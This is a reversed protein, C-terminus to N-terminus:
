DATLSELLNYVKSLELHEEYRYYKTGCSKLYASELDFDTENLFTGHVKQSPLQRRYEM